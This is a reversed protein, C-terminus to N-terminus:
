AVHPYLKRARELEPGMKGLLTLRLMRFDGRLSWRPYTFTAPRHDAELARIRLLALVGRLQGAPAGRHAM